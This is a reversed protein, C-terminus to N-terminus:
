EIVEHNELKWKSSIMKFIFIAFMLGFITAAIDLYDFTRSTWLQEFEYILVGVTCFIMKKIPEKKFFISLFLCVGTTYILNPAFGNFGFDNINNDIVWPRYLVKIIIGIIGFFLSSYFLKLRYRFNNGM